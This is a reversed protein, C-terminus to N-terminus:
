KTMVGQLEKNYKDSASQYIWIENQTFLISNKKM